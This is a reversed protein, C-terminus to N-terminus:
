RTVENAVSERERAEVIRVKRGQILLRREAFLSIALPYWRHEEDAVRAALTAPTDGDEVPVASQLVIPGGDPTDDVFHVTCGSIKMGASLVAEHVREGYMGRGGFQPLLSPHINMMRGTFQRVFGPGLIRLWGALCILDVSYANLTEALRAEFTERTPFERHDLLIAPVGTRRARWLAQADPKNSIVVVVEGPIEGRACADLISQLNTGRGSALVAIRVREPLCTWEKRAPSSM